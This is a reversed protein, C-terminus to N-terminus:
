WRFYVFKITNSMDFTSEYRALAYMAQTDDLYSAIETPDQGTRVVTLKNPNGDMHQVLVYKDGTSDDRVSHIAEVFNAGDVFEASTSMTPKWILSYLFLLCNLM